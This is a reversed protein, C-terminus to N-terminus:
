AAAVTAANPARTLRAFVIPLALDFDAIIDVSSVSSVSQICIKQPIQWIQPYNGALSRRQGLGSRDPIAKYDRM